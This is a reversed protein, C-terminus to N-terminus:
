KTSSNNTTPQEARSSTFVSNVTVDGLWIGDRVIVLVCVEEGIGVNVFVGVGVELGVLLGVAVRLVVVIGVAVGVYAGIKVGSASM